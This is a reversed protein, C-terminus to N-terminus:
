SLALLESIGNEIGEALVEIDPARDYDGTIGFSLQGIYSFIAVGIRVAGALPVYPYAALMPRGAAYLTRQPGPVNTTVTQVLHQDLGAALRTAAALVAPPTFGSLSMMTEAAEAQHHEKLDVMQEHINKLCEVPDVIGVPLEAFMGSVRNNLEGHQDEHRVSVPVLTRILQDKVEEGRSIMLARFGRTIASLVVDNVTGGHATRIKKVDAITSEAWCWRRHPGIPGNLEGDMVPDAFRRFTGLGESIDGIERLLRRPAQAAHRLGSLAERPSTVQERLADGVLSLPTPTPRPSWSEPEPHVTDPGDDMVVSLLDTGAIGDVMCHHSKSLIAWRDDELGDVVWMEWLPKSRDLQQSMVRGVLRLLDAQSGPRPLATHRVHYRLNFHTDDCWVPRGIDFPLFRVRQRYRPVRHLKSAVMEEVEDHRPAPGEMIAVSAIHMHNVDNEMYLFSADQPSMRDM